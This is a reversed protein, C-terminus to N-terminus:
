AKARNRPSWETITVSESQRNSRWRGVQYPISGGSHSVLLKPQPFRKFVDSRSISSIALSEETIFHENYTERGCCACSHIHGPIDHECLFEYLPYWYPDGMPPSKGAGDSPDPNILVGLFGLDNICRKIEDFMKELPVGTAQPLGGVGRFLKPHLKITRAILDNNDLACSVVDDWRNEGHLMMLPRPSLIQLDTGVSDMIQVNQAASKELEAEQIKAHYIGERRFARPGDKM